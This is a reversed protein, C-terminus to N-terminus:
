VLHGNRAVVVGRKVVLARPPVSAVAEPLGGARVAVLDAARGQELGYDFELGLATAARDSALSFALKLDEDTAFGQRYAVFAARDLM